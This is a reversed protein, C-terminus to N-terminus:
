QPWPIDIIISGDTPKKDFNATVMHDANMKVTTTASMTSAVSGTWSVFRYGSASTAIVTVVTDENYTHAGVAPSTAGWDTQNVAMTLTYQKPPIKEFNATVTMNSTVTVTTSSKETDAVNGTWSAFQYGASPTATMTVTTGDDYSHSGVSPDTTGWGTTNVNMTLTYTIRKFAATVTRDGSMTVTTTANSTNAVNGTWNV